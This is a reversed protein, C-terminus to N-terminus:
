RSNLGQVFARHIEEARQQAEEQEKRAKVHIAECDDFGNHWGARKGTDQGIACGGWWFGLCLTVLLWFPIPIKTTMRVPESM